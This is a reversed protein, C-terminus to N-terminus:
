WLALETSAASTSDHRHTADHRATDRAVSLRSSHLQACTHASLWSIDAAGLKSNFLSSGLTDGQKTGRWIEFRESEVDTMVTATQGDFLKKPLKMHQESVSQNRFANWFSAHVVSVFAKQFDVTAVWLHVRM